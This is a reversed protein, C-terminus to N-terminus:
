PFRHFFWPSIEVLVLVSKKKKRFSCKSSNRNLVKTSEQSYKWFQDKFFDLTFWSIERLLELPSGCIFIFLKDSLLKTLFKLKEICDLFLLDTKNLQIRRTLRFYVFQYYFIELPGIILDYVFRTKIGNSLVEWCGCIICWENARLKFHGIIPDGEM